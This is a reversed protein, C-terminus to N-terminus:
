NREKNMVVFTTREQISEGGHGTGIGGHDYTIILGDKTDTFHGKWKAIFAVNGIGVDEILTTMIMKPEVTKIEGKWNISYVDSWVGTLMSCWGPATSLAQTNEEPYNVGGCYILNISTGDNLLYNIAVDYKRETLIDACCGDYGIIALKKQKEKLYNLKM